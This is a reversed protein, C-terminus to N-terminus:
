LWTAAAYAASTADMIRAPKVCDGIPIFEKAFKRLEERTEELPSMGTAFLVTDATFKQEKGDQDIAIVSDSTICKIKMNVLPKIGCEEMATDTYIRQSMGADIMYDSQMELITIKKGQQALYIATECGVSGGGIIVINEGIEVVNEHIYAAFLGRDAGEIAPRIPVAGVAAIVVDADIEKVLSSDAKTNLLVKIDSNGVMHVLWDRYMAMDDKFPVQDAHNLLGGLRSAQEVLIVEHGRESATIAAQCGGPGGGVVLVKKKKAAPPVKWYDLERGIKPNIACYLKKTPGLMSDMCNLCRLCHRIEDNHGESAKKAFYPDAIVTRATCIVDAQGSAIIEEMLEPTNIAGLTAVPTKLHKKFEAALYVNMGRPNYPSPSAVTRGAPNFVTGVSVNFLDIKDDLMKAYEVGDSLTYAGECEESGSIRVEIPFDGCKKRVNEIIMLMLRARNELSGGWKDHRKNILPSLFQGILWGHGAHIQCMDFGAMKLTLAGNGFAEIMEYIQDETMEDVPDGMPNIMASPGIPNRGNLFERTCLAGGHALQLSALAGHQHIADALETLNPMCDPDDIRFMNKHSLGTATLVPTEGVVVIASGGAAKERYYAIGSPKMFGRPDFEQLSTASAEIRNRLTLKGIKLPSLLHPYEAM